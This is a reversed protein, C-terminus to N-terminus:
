RVSLSNAQTMLVALACSAMSSMDSDGVSTLIVPVVAGMLLGASQADALYRLQKAIMNGAELNPAILIDAQGAVPSHIGKDLAAQASIATDFALPGDLVGGTIQGREAMKCLAAAEVTSRMGPNIVEVAALIAVKPVAIGLAHALAIAHRVIHAKTELDPDFHVAADSVLLPRPYSPVDLVCVHSLCPGSSVGDAAKGLAALLEGCPLSGQMIAQVQGEHAMAVALRAADPGDTAPLIHLALLDIQASRALAHIADVPGILVPTILGMDRAEIASHLAAETCPHVLAVTIPPLGQTLAMLQHYRLTKDSLRVQMAPVRPRRVKDSPALVLASGTIVDEGSQNSCQCALTVHHNQADIESVSVRVTITDGIHVPRVFRLSQGMYITGPGPFETGIVTSILAAGWMGHAIIGHFQTSRAYEPDVHAPNVDGSMAAFLQIDEARLTRTLQAGDGIHIDAFTHNEIMDVPTLANM